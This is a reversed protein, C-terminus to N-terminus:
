LLEHKECLKKLDERRKKNEMSKNNSKLLERYYKATGFTTKGCLEGDIGHYRKMNSVSGEKGCKSCISTKLKKGKKGKSMNISREVKKKETMNQYRLLQSKSQKERMKEKKKEPINNYAKKSRESYEIKEEKTMKSFKKKASNSINKRHKAKQEKTMNKIGQSSKEGHKKAQEENMNATYLCGQGIGDEYMKNAWKDSIVINNNISFSICFNYCEIAENEDFVKIIETKYDKGHEKLEKNWVPGSGLYKHIADTTKKISKGFYKLKTKNHTKIYLSTKKFKQIINCLEDKTLKNIDLCFYGSENKSIKKKSM